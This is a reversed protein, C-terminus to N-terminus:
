SDVEDRVLSVVRTLLELAELPTTQEPDARRLLDL